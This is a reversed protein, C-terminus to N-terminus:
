PTPLNLHRWQELSPLPPDFELEIYVNGANSGDSNKVTLPVIWKGDEFRVNPSNILNLAGWSEWRYDCFVTSGIDDWDPRSTVKIELFGAMDSLPIPTEHKSLDLRAHQDGITLHAYPCQNAADGPIPHAAMRRTIPRGVDPALAAVVQSMLSVRDTFIKFPSSQDSERSQLVEKIDKARQNLEEKLGSVQAHTMPTASTLVVPFGTKQNLWDNCSRAYEDLRKGAEAMAWQRFQEVPQSLFYRVVGTDLQNTFYNNRLDYFDLYPQLPKDPAPESSRASFQVMLWNTYAKILSKKTADADDNHLKQLKDQWRPPM